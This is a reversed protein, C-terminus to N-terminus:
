ISFGQKRFKEIIAKAVSDNGYKPQESWDLSESHAIWNDLRRHLVEQSPQDVKLSDHVLADNILKQLYINPTTGASAARAVLAAETKPDFTITMNDNYWGANSEGM